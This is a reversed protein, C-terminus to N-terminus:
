IDTLHAELSAQTESGKTTKKRPKRSTKFYADAEDYLEQYFKQLRKLEPRSFNSYAERLQKNEPKQDLVENYHKVTPKTWQKISYADKQKVKKAVLWKKIDFNTKNCSGKIFQDVQFELEGLM